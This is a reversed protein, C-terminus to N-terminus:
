RGSIFHCSSEILSHSMEGRDVVLKLLSHLHNLDQLLLARRFLFVYPILSQELFQTDAITVKGSSAFPNDSVRRERELSRQRLTEATSLTFFVLGLLALFSLV